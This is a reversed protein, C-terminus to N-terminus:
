FEVGDLVARARVYKKVLRAVDAGNKQALALRRPDLNDAIDALKVRTALPHTAVREIYFDYADDKSWKTLFSVANAMSEGFEAVLRPYQVDGDEVADHLVGVIAAEVDPLLSLGVRLVHAIYPEGGLDLQGQHARCALAIAETLRETM